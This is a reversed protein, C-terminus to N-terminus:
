LDYTFSGMLMLQNPTFPQAPLPGGGGSLNALRMGLTASTTKSFSNNPTATIVDQPTTLTLSAQNPNSTLSGNNPPAPANNVFFSAADSYGFLNTQAPSFTLTLSLTNSSTADALVATPTSLLVSGVLCISVKKPILRLISLVSFLRSKM